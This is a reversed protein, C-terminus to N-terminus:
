ISMRLAYARSGTYEHETVMAMNAVIVPHHVPVFRPAPNRLVGEDYLYVDSCSPAYM